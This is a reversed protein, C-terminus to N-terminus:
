MEYLLMRLNYLQFRVQPSSEGDVVWRVPELVFSNELIVPWKSVDPPLLSLTVLNIQLPTQNSSIEQGRISERRFM